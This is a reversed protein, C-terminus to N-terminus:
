ICFLSLQKHFIHHNSATCPSNTISHGPLEQKCYTKFLEWKEPDHEPLNRTRGGNTKTPKCPMSFFRILQKGEQMKKQSLKLCKAVGELSAPLGLTLAHAQSCRWEEPPMPTNLYRALCTREFNANFATKITNLDTLAKLVENPIQEGSALDIIEVPDDDFAYALLLIEFDASNTYAYVGSKTLDVGSYTELDLTLIRM